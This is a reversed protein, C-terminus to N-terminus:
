TVMVPLYVSFTAGRGPQSSATIAGGHNAVVKECIALGIGTGAFEKRGHLRQFVQFIRDAYKQEFGIGNDIVDIRHYAAAERTPRVSAPLDTAPVQHAKLQVVPGVVGGSPDARHFKFANSLLNQFLQGLQSADGQVTPLPGIEVVADTEQIILDLDTLVANVVRTLSVTAASEQRTSIRSFSLLDKILISMRSAAMQMRQLLDLGEGLSDAYQTSLIDGFSQIKRLPEQLDHSAIYAFQQLNQNSRELDIVSAQLQRTREQVQRELEQQLRREKTVDQATGSLKYPEGQENLFVKGQIHLIREHGAEAPNVAYEIDYIGDTGPKIAHAIAARVRPRDAPLVPRYAREATIIETSGIGFWGRLRESYDLIGTALDIQWTGLEALEIAGRLASEAEEIKQRATVEETVDIAMEIIAYVEGTANRLPRFSYDFYYTSLIGDVVLDARGAKADYTNGTTFLEDLLPLFHQGILEPLADALPKGMVSPGKGWVAIMAENAIDIRMEHGVFLCTAVPAEEILTRLRAESAEVQQRSLVQQTVDVCVVLISSVPATNITQNPERQPQYTFDVYITELQNNRVFEVAVEKAIFPVGTAFVEKLLVDFGQGQLEPLADLLPKGVLQAATRGTLECYFSNVMQFTLEDESIIAIGVPSQEFLALLQQQSEEIRQQALVQETINTHVGVWERITGDPNMLPIARISFQEWIGTKVWVRHEFVFMSRRAVADQWADITPQADDPHVAKAWGYGQYEEYTQGTLSAWGTQEGEMQGRANNTWLIGQVAAIAAQFRQESEEVQQRAVREATIDIFSFVIGDDRKVVVTNYWNNFNEGTYHRDREISQGTEVVTIFDDFLGAQKFQQHVDLARKGILDTQNNAQETVRNALQYEFDIIAGTEDRVSRFVSIGAATGDFVARLLDNTEQQQKASIVKQTTETCTVLVGNIQGDDGYAPSYSFTWYVDELQGNRFIPLFQDEFWVPEGTTLVQEILPGIFGWIEPWVDRAPKGLAPHKGNTGLSPRYADNYFCLLEDGWFLFMPFASHLIIGLTTRLSLPWQDPPGISTQAWNFARTLAGM